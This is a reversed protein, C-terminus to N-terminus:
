YSNIKDVKRWTIRRYVFVHNVYIIIGIYVPILILSLYNHSQLLFKHLFGSAGAFAMIIFVRLMAAGGQSASKEISFPFGPNQFYYFLLTALYTAMLAIIMEPLVRIGWVVCAAIGIVIYFPIFFKSFAAKISGKFFSAPSSLPVTKFIWAAQRNNGTLLASPLTMSIFMLIYLYFLYNDNKSLNALTQPKNVFQVIAIIVIYGISPFLTQKFLRERGTMKWMLRFSAKEENNHVFISSMIRYWLSIRVTEIKVKANRDGQELDMLKQNFVPTLYKGTFYISAVPIILAEFTFILHAADFNSTSLSEIFGSLFAPPILFTYWNISLVMNTIDAKDVLKMGFQYGAMFLIAIVIQFYMLVTKLQEGSALRMIGLYLINAFFLTFLVNLLITFFFILGSILGFKFIAIILWVVSMSFATLSLYLFVHANRALSITNGKIPLPQIIVNESTDFLITTFESIISMAMMVLLFIHAFYYFTFPSKTISLFIGFLGGFVIQTITQRILMNGHANEQRKNFGRASRNDITLKLELIRIFQNYDAGMKEIFWRFPTFLSLLFRIM